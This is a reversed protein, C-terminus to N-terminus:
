EKVINLLYQKGNEGVVLLQYAGPILMSCDIQVEYAQANPENLVERQEQNRIAWKRILLHEPLAVNLISRVPNPWAYVDPLALATHTPVACGDIWGLADTLQTSWSLESHTGNADTYIAVQAVPLGKALLASRLDSMDTIMHQSESVGGMMFLELASSLAEQQVYRLIADANFWLSPSLAVARGFYEPYRLVAWIAVLAGMSSGAITTNTPGTRTRLRANVFPMVEDTIWDLYANAGGGTNYQENPFPAYENLRESGVNDIGIIISQACHEQMAEDWKWEGAYSTRTDFINQGDQVYWVPYSVTTNSSYDKPLCVWIRRAETPSPFRSALLRVYPTVTHQRKLDTWGEVTIEIPENSSLVAQHPAISDGQANAETRDFSGRTIVFEFVDDQVKPVRYEYVGETIFTLQDATSAANWGNHPGSIYLTDFLPTLQPTYIRMTKQAHMAFCLLLSVVGCFVRM